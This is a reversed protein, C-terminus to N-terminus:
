GAARRAARFRSRLMAAVAVLSILSGAVLAVEVRLVVGMGGAVALAVAFAVVGALWGAPVLRHGSLAIQAQVMALAVMYIGSAAALLAM